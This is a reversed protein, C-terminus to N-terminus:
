LTWPALANSWFRVKSEYQAACSDWRRAMEPVSDRITQYRPPDSGYVICLIDHFRQMNLGHEGALSEPTIDGPDTERFWIAASVAAMTDGTDILLLTALEDVASEESGSYVLGYLTIFAHGLEHFAVFKWADLARRLVDDDTWEVFGFRFVNAINVYLENCMVLQRNGQTRVWFANIAGCDQTIFPVDHPFAFTRNLWRVIDESVRSRRIYSSAAATPETTAPDHVVYFDGDDHDAATPAQPAADAGTGAGVDDGLSAGADTSADSSSGSELCATVFLMAALAAGIRTLAISLNM